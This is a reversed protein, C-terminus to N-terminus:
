FLLKLGLQIQRNNNQTGTITGFQSTTLVANPNGFAPTNFLNFAEGRIQFRFRETLVVNKFISFDINTFGPGRLYNRPTTGFTYNAPVAFGDAPICNVLRGGGCDAKVDRLLNPRQNQFGINAPDGPVTVNVPYGSQATIIGNTQWNAIVHKVFPNTSGRLFPLEYTWSAIFRHPIDWNSRGYDLRWNYADMPAGGGNSDTSVDLTKSWTYSMLMTLGATYRQRFILSLANYSAIMDNHIMRINGFLPNPQRTAVPGPGPSPQNVQFSRDLHTSKSGLYQAEFGGNRWLAHEVSFSWQNMMATPLDPNIHFANPRAPAGAAAESPTPNSLSLIPNTPSSNYTFITSFPPNTTALTYTNTQNPNYYIGYGGNIVWDDTVRYAFGIRPAWNNTDTETLPISEPVQPPIFETMEPNLIRALGNLSKPATPLEYRLGLNLTLRRTTQWKDNLFFGHRWQGVRARFMPGPTTVQLPLGLMFDAPASGSITGSFTFGGRPNNNATRATAVRRTDFGAAINHTGRTISLSDAFQTTTDNQYWNSSAMNQGGISMYGTAGLNPLGPNNEDTTYGPIGLETGAGPNNGTFFNESDIRTHQRGARFDNVVTPSFVQTYGVVLNRDRVPQTYGNFPNSNGNLLDTNAWAYRAFLRANQTISHDVRHILQDGDNSNPVNVNYNNRVGPGNPLPMYELARLAQPSLRSEPIRNGPFAPRSPDLPDVVATTVESFDGRRMAPTLVTDITPVSQRNRMGEYNSLFFTRNRGDYLGPIVVPGTLAYGFQNQRLPAQSIARNEFYGRADLANNRLFEFVSGHLDNTGGKTIVNIQVGMYHGYQAPYTGTQVQTEQVADVSPRFTTTTILNNMISVGDMSVSNQIERTGAGIYGEGGGPNGAVSKRGAIVNPVTIALRFVNRSNIPLETVARTGIVETLTADETSIPPVDATVVVQQNVQGVNLVFDNRVTQNVAVSIGRRVSTDFGPNAVTIEYTGNRVSRFDYYGQANTRIEFTEGTDMNKATVQADSISAGASDTVTGVLSTTSALQGFTTPTCVLAALALLCLRMM